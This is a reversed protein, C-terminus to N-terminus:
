RMVTSEGAEGVIRTEPEFAAWVFWFASGYILPTLRSGVLPGAVAQGLINWESGTEADVFRQVDEGSPSFTLARGDVEALFAGASGVDRGADVVATDLASSAGPSWLAVVAAGDRVEQVVREAALSGFPYSVAGEDFRVSLVREFAALRDDEEETFFSPPRLLTDYRVYPTTGYERVVGTERTVVTGDPFGDKFEGWSIVPAALAVLRAGVMDGVIAEGGLQQWLSESARDYLVLNGRRLLGSSGFEVTRGDVRRDAVAVSDCLACYSVVVPVGGVLDNVLDHWILIDLPYARAEGNLAVVVVPASKAYAGEVAGVESVVPRDISPHGDREQGSFAFESLEVTRVAWNTAWGAGFGDPAVGDRLITEGSSTVVADLSLFTTVPVGSADARSAPEALPESVPTDPAVAVVDAPDSTAEGSGGGGCAAAVVSVGAVAAVLVGGRRTM